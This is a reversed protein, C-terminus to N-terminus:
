AIRAMEGVARILLIEKFYGARLHAFLTVAVENFCLHGARIVSGKGLPFAECAMIAVATIDLSHNYVFLLGETKGTMLVQLFPHLLPFAVMLGDRDSFARLAMIGM